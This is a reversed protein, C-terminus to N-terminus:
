VSSTLQIRTLIFQIFINKMFEANLNNLSKFIETALAPLQKIEISPRGSKELLLMKSSRAQM